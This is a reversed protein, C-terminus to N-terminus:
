LDYEFIVGLGTTGGNSTMGYAKGNTALTLSGYPTAGKTTYDFDVKKTYSGSSPDYQFIVGYGYAGGTSTMGYLKGDPAQIFSDHPNTGDSSYNFDLKKVYGATSPDYEFLVGQYNAGGMFAMGYLKGNSAETLTGWPYSGSTGDFDLGKRYTTTSLDFEFLVGLNNIGGGSTMGYLKGNSAQMLDGNPYAGSLYFNFDMVKTYNVSSPDYEFLVGQTGAGGQQTMGYLKGNTALTLSGYPYAGNTDNFDLVKAYAEVSLDYEFLVGQLNAGGYSTMGYLKGNAAETLNGYPAAGNTGDFDLKKSFAATSLDYEFLVGFGNAGGNATMGYLKGNSAQIVDRNPNNGSNTGDFDLLKVYTSTAPDYEFLVGQGNAGGQSAMGYLRGNSALTLSGYPFGGNINNFDLKRTHTGTSPDYEFLVGASFIGGTSTMGYLKGNPAPTLRGSRPYGGPYPTTFNKQVSQGTGDPATKFILGLGDQGGQLTMGWLEGAQQARLPQTYLASIAFLIIPYLKKM